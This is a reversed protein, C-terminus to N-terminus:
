FQVNVGLNIVRTMPYANGSSDSMEPDFYPMKTWTVLNQGNVYVRLGKVPSTERMKFQYAVEVNKLRIYSADQQWLTSTKYNHNAADPNESLRPLSIPLGSEYREQTWSEKATEFAVKTGSVFPWAATGSLYTSVNDVGQFLASVSFGKWEFGLSLGYVIEPVNPFGINVMDDEDIIGDQTIDKYKVDGPRLGNGEWKSIPRDPDNIEDWTNYFGEAVLGKPQNIRSGTKYLHPYKKPSEDMYVIKNRAFSYNMNAWYTFGCSEIKDKYGLSFEYGHNEARGVNYPPVLASNGFWLPLNLQWLINNRKETFYDFSFNMRDSFLRLDLGINLKKATEWTVDQNGLKDEKYGPYKQNSMGFYYGGSTQVYSDPLFLFRQGGIKDNGVLGYSGRLKGYSLIKNKPFFKEETFAYGLAVSPFFGFQKKKYFNESGNYGANFEFLYRSKFNYTARAVLGMYNYPLENGGSYKREITGLLLMSINHGKFGNSYELAAESYIRRNKSYSDSGMKVPGEYTNAVYIPKKIGGTSSPDVFIDYMPIQKTRTIMQLYYNDYALKARVSLGKLLRDLKYKASLDINVNSSFNENNGKSLMEYLPTNSIMWKELGQVNRIIMNDVVVPSCVPNASYITGMITSASSSAYNSEIIQAGAKVSLLFDKNVQFDVNSRINYRNYKPNASFDDFFDGMKYAGDQSFYGLSVFYKTKKTGGRMSLNYQQQLSVDKLMYDLWNIDPHFIPDDGNRYHELDEDSFPYNVQDKNEADQYAAENRLSAWDYANLLKPLRIPNHLAMNASFSIQPKGERGAKTTVIIVGNAGRVGFVATSAADKLVNITEIENPDLGSLSREVGDVLILPKAGGDAFTAIGRVFIEADDKGPEGSRQVSTIGSAQGALANAANAVPAKIIDESKVSGLAGTVTVKTQTGYGIVVVEDLQESDEEMVVVISKSKGVKVEKTRYGLYSFQLVDGQKVGNLSFNGDLDTVSGTSTGKIMIAVGIIPEGNKDKVIGKIDVSEYSEIFSNNTDKVELPYAVSTFLSLCITGYFLRLDM